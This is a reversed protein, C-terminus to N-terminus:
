LWSISSKSAADSTLISNPVIDDKSSPTLSKIKTEAGYLAPLFIKMATATVPSLPFVTHKVSIKVARFTINNRVNTNKDILDRDCKTQVSGFGGSLTKVGGTGVDEVSDVLKCDVDEVSVMVESEEVDVSNVVNIM